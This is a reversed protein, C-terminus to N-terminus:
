CMWRALQTIPIIVRGGIKKSPLPNRVKKINERVIDESVGLAKAAERVSIAVKEPFMNDLRELAERYGQKEM